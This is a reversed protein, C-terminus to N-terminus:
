LVGAAVKYREEPARGIGVEATKQLAALNQIVLTSSAWYLIKGAKLRSLVRSTTERSLGIMRALDEQNAGLLRISLSDKTQGTCLSRAFTVLKQVASGSLGITKLEGLITLFRQSILEATQFAIEADERLLRLFIDRRLFIATTREV